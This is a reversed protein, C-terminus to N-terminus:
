IEEMNNNKFLENIMESLKEIEGRINLDPYLSVLADIDDDETDVTVFVRWNMDNIYSMKVNIKGITVPGDHDEFDIEIKLVKSIIRDNNIENDTLISFNIQANEKDSKIGEYVIENKMLWRCNSDHIIFKRTYHSEMMGVISEITYHVPLYRVDPIDAVIVMDSQGTYHYVFAFLKGIDIGNLCDLDIQVMHTSPIKSIDNDHKAYALMRLLAVQKMEKTMPSLVTNISVIDTQIYVSGIDVVKFAMTKM